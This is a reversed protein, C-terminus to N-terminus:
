SSSKQPTVPTLFAVAAFEVGPDTTITFTNRRAQLGMLKKGSYEDGTGCRDSMLWFTRERGAHAAIEVSGPTGRCLFHIDLEQTAPITMRLPSKTHVSGTDMVWAQPSGELEPFTKLVHEAYEEGSPFPRDRSASTPSPTSSGGLASSTPPATAAPGASTCGGLLLAAVGGAIALLQHRNM